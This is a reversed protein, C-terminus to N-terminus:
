AADCHLIFAQISDGVLVLTWDRIGPLLSCLKSEERIKCRYPKLIAIRM